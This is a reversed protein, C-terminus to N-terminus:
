VLTTLELNPAEWESLWISIPESLKLDIVVSLMNGWARYIDHGTVQREPLKKKVIVMAPLLSLSTAANRSTHDWYSTADIRKWGIRIRSYHICSEMYTATDTQWVTGRKELNPKYTKIYPAHMNQLLVGARGGATPRDTKSVWDAMAFATDSDNDIIVDYPLFKSQHWKSIFFFSFFCLMIAISIYM